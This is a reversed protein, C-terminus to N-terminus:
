FERNLNLYYKLTMPLPLMKIKEKMYTTHNIVQVVSTNNNPTEVNEIDSQSKITETKLDTDKLFPYSGEFSASIDQNLFDVDHSMEAFDEQESDTSAKCTEIDDVIGSDIKERRSKCVTQKDEMEHASEVFREKKRSIRKNSVNLVRESEETETFINQLEEIDSLFEEDSMEELINGNSNEESLVIDSDEEMVESKNETETFLDNELSSDAACRNEITDLLQASTDQLLQSWEVLSRCTQATNVNMLFQQADNLSTTAQHVDQDEEGESSGSFIPIVLRRINKKKARKRPVKPPEKLEPHEIDINRRLISRVTFRCIDQLSMPDTSAAFVFISFM